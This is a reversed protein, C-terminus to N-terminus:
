IWGMGGLGFLARSISGILIFVVISIIITIIFYGMAKDQPTDMMIPLGLYFLYLSYLSLILAIPALFPIIILIGAIWSPTSSFVALKMANTLNKQSGFSPALADIIQAIVYLGVLSLVYSVVAHSIGTGLPIRYHINMMSVGLLSLGLFSALPPIAALIVAYSSYLEQITTQETKIAPWTDKPKMTIDKVRQVIDM